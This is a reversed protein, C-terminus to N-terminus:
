SDGGQGIMDMLEQESLSPAKHQAVIRGEQVLAVDDCVALLEAPEDSILLIATGHDAADRILDHIDARSGVDVGVTPNNLVVVEPAPALSRALLVRQQNGGSLAAVPHRASPAKIRLRERWREGVNIVKDAALTQGRGLAESLDNVIINDAVSWDLFLGETLRDDPVYQLRLDRRRDTLLQGHFRVEGCDPRVLGVIALGIEIRGSGVLGALGLVQGQHLTLDIEHFSSSLTLDSVELVPVDSKGPQHRQGETVLGGTMLESMREQDYDSARGSSAVVGDRIVTVDDAISVVERLKHSIFVFSLGQDSLHRVTELLQDIERHTLSATPEDMLLIQGNSSVTRAIAILQREATSLDGLRADLPIDLHLADLALRARDRMARRGAFRLMPQDGEFTLNEAVTMNPFLALDQFIVRVGHKIATRPDVSSVHEGDFALTGEDPTVVGAIIKTLTSKGSGNEGVLGHVTGRRLALDVGALAHVTGYTKHVGQAAVVPPPPATATSESTM